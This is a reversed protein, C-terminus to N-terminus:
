AAPAPVIADQAGILYFVNELFSDIIDSDTDAYYYSNSNSSSSSNSATTTSGDLSTSTSASPSLSSSSISRSSEDTSDRWWFIAQLLLDDYQYAEQSDYGHLTKCIHSVNNFLAVYCIKDVGVVVSVNEFALKYLSKAVVLVHECSNVSLDYFSSSKNNNNNKRTNNSEEEETSQQHAQITVLLEMGWLHNCLATNYILVFSKDDDSSSEWEEETMVIPLSYIEHNHNYNKHEEQEKRHGGCYSPTRLLSISTMRRIGEQNQNRHFNCNYQSTLSSYYFDDIAMPMVGDYHDEEDDTETEDVFETGFNSQEEEEEFYSSASSSPSVSPDIADCRRASPSSSSSSSSSGGGMTMTMSAIQTRRTIALKLIRNAEAYNGKM